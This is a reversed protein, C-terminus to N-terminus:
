EGIEVLNLIDELNDGPATFGLQIGAPIMEYVEVEALHAAFNSGWKVTETIRVRVYRAATATFDFSYWTAAAAVFNNRAHATTFNVNDTSLQIQFDRPFAGGADFRSRLRVRGVNMSSGLDLTIQETQMSSRPTSNWYTGVNGDVVKEKSNSSSKDGSSSIATSPRLELSAGGVSANLDTIAEPAVNDDTSANAVNSLSSINNVDDAVKIAFYYRTDPDLGTVIFTEGLGQNKPPDPVNVTIPNAAAFDADSNIPSTSRRIDYSSAATGSANDDDGVAIWNLRIETTSVPTASLDSM